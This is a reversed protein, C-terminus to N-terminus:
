ITSSADKSRRASEIRYLDVKVEHKRQTHFEFMRPISLKMQYISTVKGGRREIFRKIFARNGEGSKHLSYVVSALELAKLLFKQDASRKQVGFPPNELVTHFSGHLVDLDGVIWQIKDRVSANLANRRAVRVASKDLDIGVSEAAGLFAAGIALRGTGCGLDVVDKDVIDNNMHAAIFLVEAAVDAPITYQELSANPSPHAEVSQLWRELDLRRVLRRQPTTGM